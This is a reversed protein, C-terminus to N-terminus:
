ETSPIISRRYGEVLQIVRGYNLLGEQIGQAKLYATYTADRLVPAIDRYLEGNAYIAELDNRIGPDLETGRWELYGEPDAYRLQGALHRWYALELSYRLVPDSTEVAALYGWFSCTGEDGFGYAHALEHAMVAPKQLPHLGADINGQGAWPWYVGATSLRLLVGRPLLEWARPKGPAPYAHRLLAAAVLPRLTAELDAPFREEALTFTDGTITGRIASLEAATTYVRERLEEVSPAYTSFGMRDEVEQRGYNFGWLWLFALVLALLYTMVYLGSSFAAGRKGVRPTHKRIALFRRIELAALVIVGLWFLYFLPFPIWGLTYDWVTRVVPFLHRSYGEEIVTEPLGIRLGLTLLTIVLLWPLAAPRLHLPVRPLTM